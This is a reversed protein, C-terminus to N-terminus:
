TSQKFRPALSAVRLVTLDTTCGTGGCVLIHEDQSFLGPPEFSAWIAQAEAESSGVFVSHRAYQGYGAKTITAGFREVTLRPWTSPVSFIFEVCSNAWTKPIELELSMRLEIHQYLQTLYDVFWKEVDEISAPVNVPDKEQLEKLLDEDLFEKFWDIVETHPDKLGECAFGWSTLEGNERSYALM